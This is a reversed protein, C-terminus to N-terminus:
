GHSTDRAFLGVFQDGHRRRSSGYRFMAYIIASILKRWFGYKGRTFQADGANTLQCVERYLPSYFPFGAYALRIPRFGLKKLEAEAEGRAFNRMHGMNVEFPRMRGTPFSLLLYRNSGNALRAMFPRWDDVHELVEFCCVLDAKQDMERNDPDHIFTLNKQALHRQALAIGAASFDSGRVQANLYRQALMVTIVGEGCGVDHITAPDSDMAECADAILTRLWRSAPGFRRMDVWSEWSSDYITLNDPHSEPTM